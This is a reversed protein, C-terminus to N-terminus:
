LSRNHEVKTGNIIQLHMLFYIKNGEQDKYSSIVSIILFLHSSMILAQVLFSSEPLKQFCQIDNHAMCLATSLFIINENEEQDM